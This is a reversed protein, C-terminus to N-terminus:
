EVTNNPLTNHPIEGYSNTQDGSSFMPLSTNVNEMEPDKRDVRKYKAPYSPLYPSQAVENPKLKRGWQAGPVYISKKQQRSLGMTEGLYCYLFLFAFASGVGLLIFVGQSQLASNMLPNTALSLVLVTLYLTM